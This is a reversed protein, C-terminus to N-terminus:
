GEKKEVLQAPMDPIPEGSRKEVAAFKEPCVELCTGCKTCKAQDIVHVRKKEGRIAEV